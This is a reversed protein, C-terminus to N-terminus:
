GSFLNYTITFALIGEEKIPTNSVTARDLMGFPLYQKIIKDM